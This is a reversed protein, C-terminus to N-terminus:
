NDLVHHTFNIVIFEAPRSARLGVDIKMRGNLIDDENMTVGQGVRVFFAQEKTDGVLGGAQWLDELYSEMMARVKLWTIPTNPQFVAFGTAKQLSAKVMNFLRRVNIYRWENDNGALTRAGWVLTGKGTFTRIINISKGANVDVNMNEQERNNLRRVPEIVSALGVNAPAKWVGFTSDNAAYIGAIGASPPLVMRQLKLEALIDNYLAGKDFKIDRLKIDSTAFELETKAMATIAASATGLAKVDFLQTDAEQQFAAIVDEVSAGAAVAIDLMSNQGPDAQETFTFSTEAADTTISVAPKKSEPGYYFIGLGNMNQVYRGEHYSMQTAAFPMVAEEATGQLAISFKGRASKGLANWAKFLEVPSISEEGNALSIVMSSRFLM